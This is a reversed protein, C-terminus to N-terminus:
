FPIAPCGKGFDLGLPATPASIGTRGTYTTTSVTPQSSSYADETWVKSGKCGSTYCLKKTHTVSQDIEKRVVQREYACRLVGWPAGMRGVGPPTQNNEDNEPGTAGGAILRWPSYIKTVSKHNSTWRWVTICYMGLPDVYLTPGDGAYAYRELGGRLGLPDESIFRGFTPSYYRARYFYLGDGDNERGTFQYSNANSAGQTTTGGFPQYTYSTQVTGTTDALALTSGLADPLFNSTGLADTRTFYEDVGGTLMNANVTTGSLEQIPNLGDYLFNTNTSNITKGQRRGFPDYAFSASAAGSIGGLQNRSNWSYTNTGDGTMNGNLDYTLTAGNWGTLQNAVNYAATGTTANPIGTRAWTGGLQTRRGDADYAYALNGLTSGSLSYTLGTLQSGRDYSYGVVIGNPLTLSTRRGTADYGFSVGATGQTIGTLRSANDYAYTVANSQGSVTLQTRRGANDYAYGVTGEPGQEQTLRDLGDYTRNFTGAISDAARTLRNGLDYTYAITSDYVPGPQTNFGALALRNLADYNYTTIKGRRDTFTTLNNNGDYAYTESNGLPDTRTQLRDMNDYAYGTPNSTNKPDTVTLLNGNGDYTFSTVGSLADTISTIQDLPNYAYRTLQGLPSTVSLLRGGADHIFSTTRGLPDKTSALDAGDYTFSTTEGAPDTASVVRGQSDNTFKTVNGLADTVSTLNGAADYAFSTVHGLPDTLSTLQSYTSDYTFTTTVANPTGALRTVSLLNGLNDYTTTTTRGLADTSSTLLNAGPGTQTTTTEAISTGSAMTATSATGGTVYGSLFSPAAEFVVTEVNGNPDTVTTQCVGSVSEQGSGGAGPPTDACGSANYSLLYKAGYPLDQEIVRNSSDYKNTLYTITRPDTISTMNNYADYTYKWIGGNADTVQTLRGGSDYSYLVTRGLEDSAQTIRYNSDYTLAIWRGNPSTIQTANSNSDRTITLTNGNRDTISLVAGQQGRTKQYSDPFVYVTGDRRTLNWQSTNGNWVITAGFFPGPDSNAVYVADTYTTDTSTRTFHVRSGDAMVLDLYTYPFSDGVLFIDYPHNTGVGFARSAADNQRYMRTLVIPIVDPEYLDTKQYDFLGTGLNVPEGTCPNTPSPVCGGGGGPGLGSNGTMAGTLEYFVVGPDPDIRTGDKTVKGHGYVYWGKKKAGYNWFDFPSGPPLHYTNPYILWGGEPGNPDSTWIWGGGPQITFYTPVNVGPPLPFPPQSVPIPTISVQNVTKGDIDTITTGAPVHFELGPILPTTVVTEATTPVPITVAHATDIAPMWITYSLVNTQGAAVDVGDPFVGYTAVKTSASRGDIVMVDHGSPVDRLLFRGTGDTETADTGVRLTVGKLPLGSQLLVQGSIATVGPPAELAPLKLYPSNKPGGLWSASSPLGIEGGSSPNQGATTFSFSFEPLVSGSAASVGTLDAAYATGPALSDRPTVFVLMGDEAAVVTTAVSGEPGSLAITNANASPMLIPASFRIAVLANAPVNESGDGPITATVGFPGQPSPPLVSQMQFSQTAPDYTEGHNLASGTTDNGGWLLVTGDAELTAAQGSRPILLGGAADSASNTRPDWIQASRLTHGSDDTGGAFFVTGDTLLTATHRARPIIGLPPLNEFQKTAPDFLEAIRVVQGDAGVGGFILVKGDPLVTASQWARAHLLATQLLVPAASQSNQIRAIAIPGGPGEGGLLLVTGDPLATATQGPLGSGSSSAAGSQAAAPRRPVLTRGGFDTVPVLGAVAAALTGWMLYSGFRPKM